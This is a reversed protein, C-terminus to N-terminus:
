VFMDLARKPDSVRARGAETTLPQLAAAATQAPNQSPRREQAGSDGAGTTGVSVGGLQLGERQLLDKLHVAASELAARVQPDDTQFTVHAENGQLSISVDVPKDGLGDVSLQAKQIDHTIWFAVQEAVVVEPAAPAAVPVDTSSPQPSAVGFLQAEPAGEVVKSNSAPRELPLGEAQVLQAFDPAPAAAAGASLPAGQLSREIQAARLDVSTAHSAAAHSAAGPHTGLATTDPQQPVWPAESSASALSPQPVSHSALAASVALAAPTQALRIPLAVTAGTPTPSSAEASTLRIGEWATITLPDQSAIAATQGAQAQAQTPVASLVTAAGTQESAAAAPLLAALANPSLGAQPSADAAQASTNSPARSLLQGGPNGVTGPMGQRGLAAETLVTGRTRSPMALAAGAADTAATGVGQVNPALAWAMSQALLANGDMPTNPQVVAADPVGTPLAATPLALTAGLADGSADDAAALASLFGGPAGPNTAGGKGQNARHGHLTTAGRLPQAQITM